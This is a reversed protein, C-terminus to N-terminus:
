YKFSTFNSVPVSYNGPDSAAENVIYKGGADKANAVICNWGGKLLVSSDFTASAAGGSVAAEAVTKGNIQFSVTKIGPDGVECSVTVTDGSVAYEPASILDPAIDYMGLSAALAGVGTFRKDLWSIRKSIFAEMRTYEEDFTTGYSESSFSPIRSMEDSWRADNALAARYIYDGYSDVASLLDEIVTGRLEQWREYVLTLFYPDRVLMRNWQEEQYYQEIMFNDCTTHWAEPEWTASNWLVNGWAWDFDWQPGIKGQGDTDKYVFFSNKMSDWNMALECFIFNDVLSDMDFLESYHKGDFAPASFDVPIYERDSYKWWDTPAYHADGDRYFFDDSHLAFEFAQMYSATYSYLESAYFSDFAEPSEPAPSNFYLPLSYYSFLQVIDYNTYAYFDMELLFGGTQPPLPALGLDDTFSYTKGNYRIQGTKMWSWDRLMESEVTEPASDPDGLLEGVAKGADEAYAEWDFINVRSDAIRVHEALEYVGCYEGNYILVVNESGMAAREGGESMSRWLGLLLKNRMLTPDKANALLCWHKSKGDGTTGIGLLNAKKDLKLKFPRKPLTETSNGRLHVSAGGTYGDKGDEGALRVTVESYREARVAGYDTDSDMYLVPLASFYVRETSAGGASVTLFCETDGDGLTLSPSPTKKESVTGDIASELKWTYEIGDPGDVTIPEGPALRETVFGLSDLEVGGADTAAGGPSDGGGTEGTEAGDPGSCSVVAALLVPLFCAAIVSIIRHTHRKM